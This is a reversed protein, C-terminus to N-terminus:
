PKGESKYKLLGQSEWPSGDTTKSLGQVFKLLGMHFHMTLPTLVSPLRSSGIIKSQSSGRYRNTAKSLM